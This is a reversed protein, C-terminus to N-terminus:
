PQIAPAKTPPEVFRSVMDQIPLKAKLRSALLFTGGLKRQIYLADMPVQPPVFGDAALAAGAKNMEQVFSTDGFDFEYRGRFAACAIEVLDLIARQHRTETDPDIFGIDQLVALLGATDGALGVQFLCRYQEAVKPSIARTAGFDLLVLRDTDPEFRYNAFNPDTQMVGFEFLERLVLTVLNQTLQNRRDQPLDVADEIPASAVFSMALVHPTTFDSYFEPLVFVDEARLLQNFTRLSQGERNYDAEEHLQRRAEELYPKLDFGKPILGSVKILGAVNAVDSDISRAVGPYQVKIAMDRGDRTKARHVQGISAAAVPRVDFREFRSLWGEGWAKNLVTKLQRPPMFDAQARLRAMIQSLEPPLIDGTDMSLLQGIKMAAGRMRALDDTVRRINTPTLFLDRMDPRNGRAVDRFGSIAMNGAVGTTMAGLRVLRSLRGSPVNLARPPTKPGSM